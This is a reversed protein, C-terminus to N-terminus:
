TPSTRRQSSGDLARSVERGAYGEALEIQRGDVDPIQRTMTGSPLDELAPRQEVADVRNEELLASAPPPCTSPSGCNRM